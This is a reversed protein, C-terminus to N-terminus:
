LGKNGEVLDRVGAAVAMRTRERRQVEADSISQSAWITGIRLYDGIDPLSLVRYKNQVKPACDCKSVVNM